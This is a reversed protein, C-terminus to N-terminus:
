EERSIITSSFRWFGQFSDQWIDIPGTKYGREIIAARVEAVSPREDSTGEVWGEHNQDRVEVEMTPV